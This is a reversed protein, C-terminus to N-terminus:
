VRNEEVSAVNKRREPGRYKEENRRRRCPGYYTPGFIFPRPRLIVDQIRRQLSGETFPKVLFENVGADRASHVAARNAHGTIMIVPLVQLKMDPLRRLSEVFTIGDMNNMSLDCLVFDFSTTEVSRLAERGDACEASGVKIRQLLRRLLARTHQDDDVVLATLGLKSIEASPDAMTM